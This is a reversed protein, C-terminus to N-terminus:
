ICVTSWTLYKYSAFKRNTSNTVVGGVSGAHTLRTSATGAVEGGMTSAAHVINPVSPLRGVSPLNVSANGAAEGGM